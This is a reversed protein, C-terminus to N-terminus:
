SSPRTSIPAPRSSTASSTSTTATSSSRTRATPSSSTRAASRRARASTTASSRGQAVARHHLRHRPRLRVHVDAVGLLVLLQGDVDPLAAALRHGRRAGRRHEGRRRAAHLHQDRQRAAARGRRRDRLRAPRRRRGRGAAGAGPAPEGRRRALHAGDLPGHRRRAPRLGGVLWSRLPNSSIGTLALRLLSRPRLVVAERDRPRWAAAAATERKMEGVVLVAIGLAVTIGGAVLLTPKMETNCVMMTNACTGVIRPRSAPDHPRRRRDHRHGARADDGQAARVPAPRRRRLLPIGAIIEARATWFCKMMRYPLSAAAEAGGMTSSM